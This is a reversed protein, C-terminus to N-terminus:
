SIGYIDTMIFTSDTNVQRKSVRSGMVFRETHVKSFQHVFIEIFHHAVYKILATVHGDENLIHSQMSHEQLMLFVKNKLEEVVNIVVGEKIKNPSNQWHALMERVLKDTTQVISVLSSSPVFLNGLPLLTTKIKNIDEQNFSKYLSAACKLCKMNAVMKKAIFGGIYFLVDYKWYTSLKRSPFHWRILWQRHSFSSSPYKWFTIIAPDVASSNEEYDDNSSQSIDTCHATEPADVNKTLLVARIPYKLELIDPNNNWGFRGRMKSFFM